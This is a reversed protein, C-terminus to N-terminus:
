KQTPIKQVSTQGPRLLQRNEDPRGLGNPKGHFAHQIPLAVRCESVAELFCFASRWRSSTLLLANWDSLGNEAGFVKNKILASPIGQFMM